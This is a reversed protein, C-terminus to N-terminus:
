SACVQRRAQPAGLRCCRQPLTLAQRGRPARCRAAAAAAAQQRQQKSGSGGPRAGRVKGSPLGQANIEVPPCGTGLSCKADVGLQVLGDVLDQIPRERMRAVGDLVFRCCPPSPPPRATDHLRPSAATAAARPLQLQCRWGSPGLGSAAAPPLPPRWAAAPVCKGRGAAAVAATLPRMATGANGLSLEAGTSKFRGGCGKVVMEGEDWKEELEIGLAKLAGAMYRIDDSDLLNRVV